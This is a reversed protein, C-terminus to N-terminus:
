EEGHRLSKKEKEMRALLMGSTAFLRRRYRLSPPRSVPAVHHSDTNKGNGERRIETERVRTRRTPSVPHRWWHNEGRRENEGMKEENRVAAQLQRERWRAPRM